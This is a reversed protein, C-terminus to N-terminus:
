ANRTYAYTYGHAECYCLYWAKKLWHTDVHFPTRVWTHSNPNGTCFRLTGHFVTFNWDSNQEDYEPHDKLIGGASLHNFFDNRPIIRFIKGDPDYITIM